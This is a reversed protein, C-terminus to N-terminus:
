FWPVTATQSLGYTNFPGGIPHEQLIGHEIFLPFAHATSRSRLLVFPLTTRRSASDPIHQLAEDESIGKRRMLRRRLRPASSQIQVRRIFRHLTTEPVSQMDSIQVHDRMGTLWDGNALHQLADTTSHLRLRHGLRKGDQSLDPFSVGIDDRHLQVLARHLKSYLASMLQHSPFDPDPRLRIDIYRNM